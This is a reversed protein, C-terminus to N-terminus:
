KAENATMASQLRSLTEEFPLQVVIAGSVTQVHSQKDGPMPQVSVVYTSNVAAERLGFDFVAPLKILM